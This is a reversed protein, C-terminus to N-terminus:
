EFIFCDCLTPSVKLPDARIWLLILTVHQKAEKSMPLVCVRVLINVSLSYGSAGMRHAAMLRAFIIELCIIVDFM